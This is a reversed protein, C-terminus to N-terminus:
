GKCLRECRCGYTAKMFRVLDALRHRYTHEALVRKRGRRAVTNRQPHLRCSNNLLLEWGEDGYICADFSSLKKVCSLRYLLTAKWLVAAELAVKERSGLASLRHAEETSLSGARDKLPHSGRLVEEALRHVLHRLPEPVKEMDAWIRSSQRVEGTRDLGAQARRGM